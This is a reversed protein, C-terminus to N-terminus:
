GKIVRGNVLRFKERNIWRRVKAPTSVFCKSEFDWEMPLGARKAKYLFSVSKGVPGALEKVSLKTSVSIM